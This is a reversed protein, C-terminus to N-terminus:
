KMGGLGAGPGYIMEDFVCAWKTCSGDVKFECAECPRDKLHGVLKISKIAIDLSEEKTVYHVGHFIDDCDRKMEELVELAIKKDTM